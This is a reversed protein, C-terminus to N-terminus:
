SRYRGTRLGWRGVRLRTRGMRLGWRGVRLRTRGMRLGWRGVRLRTRGMRLRRRGVRLRRRGVRLRPRDAARRDPQLVPGRAHDVTGIDYDVEWLNKSCIRVNARDGLTKKLLHSHKCSRELIKQVAAHGQM